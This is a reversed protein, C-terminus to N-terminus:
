DLLYNVEEIRKDRIDNIERSMEIIVDKYEKVLNKEELGPLNIKVNMIAGHFASHLLLVAVGQDSVTNRNSHQIIVDMKRMMELSLAAVKMPTKISAITAKELANKRNSIEEDTEKPLKMAAVVQNFAETDEDIYLEFLDKASEFDKILAIYRDQIATELEKFKKRKITLAAVMLVLSVANAGVLASVSGGGPAPSNSSLETLFENLKYDILKM